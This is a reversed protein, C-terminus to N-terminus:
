RAARTELRAARAQLYRREPLSTTQRAALRYEEGAGAVDGAEERLHGRVGALRHHRGLAPDSELEDLLRLGAGPGHFRAYAVAQNLSVMPSPAVRELLGYLALVEPWDVDDATAAEAHVAAIAAQLQYPGIAGRALARSVLEVGEAIAGTDWRTRDQEDMPVIAGDPTARTARRSDTLLMLALLGGVEAHDPLLRNVERTVRIAEATLERRQLNTGSSATYGENFILYLMHLVAPLRDDQGVAAPADGFTRGAADIRQKARSIRQAMTAEPVLYAAAIEATTLGAVARLALAVQSAPAVTPHCCLFLM